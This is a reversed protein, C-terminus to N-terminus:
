KRHTTRNNTKWYQFEEEHIEIDLEM